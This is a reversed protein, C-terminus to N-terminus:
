TGVERRDRQTSESLGSGNLGLWGEWLTFLVVSGSMDRGGGRASERFASFHEYGM